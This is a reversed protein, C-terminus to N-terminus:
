TSFNPNHVKNRYAVFFDFGSTFPMPGDKSLLEKVDEPDSIYVQYYKSGPLKLKFIKGYNNFYDEFIPKLKTKNRPNVFRVIDTLSISPIEDFSKASHVNSSIFKRVNRSSCFGTGALM